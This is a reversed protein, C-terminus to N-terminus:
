KSMYPHSCSCCVDCQPCDKCECCDYTSKNKACGTVVSIFLIFVSIVLITNKM